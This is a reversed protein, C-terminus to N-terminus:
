LEAGSLVLQTENGAKRADSQHLPVQLTFRCGQGPASAIKVQGGLLALRERVTFLGVQNSVSDTSILVPLDDGFAFTAGLTEQDANMARDPKGIFV